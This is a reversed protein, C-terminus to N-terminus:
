RRLFRYCPRGEGEWQKALPGERYREHRRVATSTTRQHSPDIQRSGGIERGTGRTGPSSMHRPPAAAVFTRYSTAGHAGTCPDVPRRPSGGFSPSSEHIVEFPIGADVPRALLVQNAKEIATSSHNLLPFERMVAAAQRLQAIPQD